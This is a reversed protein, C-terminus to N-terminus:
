YPLCSSNFSCRIEIIPKVLSTEMILLYLLPTNEAVQLEGVSALYAVTETNIMHVPLPM